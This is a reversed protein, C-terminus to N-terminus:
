APYATVLRPVETGQEVIWITILRITDNSPTRLPGEVVYRTGFPSEVTDVVDNRVGHQKLDEALRKWEEIRYGKSEVFRAKWHTRNMMLYGRIKRENVLAKASGPLKM